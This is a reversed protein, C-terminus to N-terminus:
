YQVKPPAGPFLYRLNLFVMSAHAGPPQGTPVSWPHRTLYSYQVMFQLGGYKPDKWFTQTLGGTIEQVSRNATPGSGVFGYGVQKGTTPDIIINKQIYVGGYYSYLLTSKTVQAEIGQVTSYSHILSLSGDGRVVLDPAQGFIYRGVGDGYFNNSLIHFGKFVEFNLNLAGGGGTTTFHDVSFPNFVKFSRAVGAVEIHFAREAVKPDFAVKAVIDPHLNPVAIGSTGNDLQGPIYAASLAVPATIVGAGGSGGIYQEPNELSLGLAVTSSPHYLVRFQPQRAWVLGVQYNVDINNTYFIDSPLPSIGVRNPTMMSWSQGGLVELKDKRIDVWFLRLRFIDSNTSVDLNPIAATAGGLFDSEWYGIVRWDKVCADIRMGIRSNQLSFRNETLNGPITNEFPISGFNTGIGSAGNVTRFVSTADIFGVPTFTALGLHFQLPSEVPVHNQSAGASIATSGSPGASQGAANAAPAARASEPSAPATAAKPNEFFPPMTAAKSNESWLAATGRNANLGALDSLRNELSDILTQQRKVIDELRKVKDDLAKYNEPDIPSTAASKTETTANDSSGAPSTKEGGDSRTPAPAKSAGDETLAASTSKASGMLLLATIVIAGVPGRPDWRSALLRNGFITNVNV